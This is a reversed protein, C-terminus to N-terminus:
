LGPLNWSKRLRDYIPRPLQVLLPEKSPDLWRIIELINKESMATCGVTAQDPGRWIHLFICSGAGAGRLANQDVLIGWKYLDDERRMKEAHKWTGEGPSVDTVIETYRQSEPDDVCVTEPRLRMFPMKTTATAAYGFVKSLSFVGAPARKDGESKIPGNTQNQERSWGMGAKGVVVPLESRPKPWPADFGDRELFYLTGTTAEWSPTMVVLCQRSQHMADGAHGAPLAMWLVASSVAAVQKM